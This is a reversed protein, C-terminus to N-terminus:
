FGNNWDICACLGGVYGVVYDGMNVVKNWVTVVDNKLFDYDLRGTASSEQQVTLVSGIMTTTGNRTLALQSTTASGEEEQVGYWKIRYKGNRPITITAGTPALALSNGSDFSGPCAVLPIDGPLIPDPLDSREIVAIDTTLTEANSQWQGNVKKKQIM